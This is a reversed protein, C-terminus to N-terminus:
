LFFGSIQKDNNEVIVVTVCMCGYFLVKLCSVYLAFLIHHRAVMSSEFPEAASIHGSCIWFSVAFVLSASLLYAGFAVLNLSIVCVVRGNRRELDNLTVWNPVLRFVYGV